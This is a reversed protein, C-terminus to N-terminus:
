RRLYLTSRFRGELEEQDVFFTFVSATKEVIGADLTFEATTNPGTQQLYTLSFISDIITYTGVVRQNNQILEFQGDEQLLLYDNATFNLDTETDILVGASDFAEYIAKTFFWQEGVIEPEVIKDKKCSSIITPLFLVLLLYPWIKKM